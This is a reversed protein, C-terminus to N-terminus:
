WWVYTLIIGLIIRYIAFVELSHKSLWKLIWHITAYGILFTLVVGVFLHIDWVLASEKYADFTVKATAAVIAPVSFIMTLRVADVRDIKLLRAATLCIGSRSVGPFLALAQFCGIVIADKTSIEQFTRDRGVHKDVFYLIVGFITMNIALLTCNRFAIHFGTLITGVIVVPITGIILYIVMSTNEDKKGRFLRLGSLFIKTMDSRFYIIVALLTGLHLMVDFFLSQMNFNLLKSTLLLHASSSIPLFETIGQVISLIITQFFSMNQRFEQYLLQNHLCSLM